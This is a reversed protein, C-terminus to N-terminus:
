ELCQRREMGSRGLSCFGTTGEVKGEAVVVVVQGEVTLEMVLRGREMLAVASSGELSEGEVAAMAVLARGEEKERVEAPATEMALVMVAVVVLEPAAVGSDM